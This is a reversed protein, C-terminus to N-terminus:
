TRISSKAKVVIIHLPPALHHHHIYIVILINFCFKTILLLQLIRKPAWVHIKQINFIIYIYIAYIYIYLYSYSYLYVHAHLTPVNHQIYVNLNCIENTIRKPETGSILYSLTCYLWNILFFCRSSCYFQIYYYAYM